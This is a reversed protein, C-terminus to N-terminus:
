SEKQGAKTAPSKKLSDIWAVIECRRWAIRNGGLKVAAPFTGARMRRWLTMRGYNIGLARLDDYSLLLRQDNLEGEKTKVAM